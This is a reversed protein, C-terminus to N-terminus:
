FEKVKTNRDTSIDATYVSDNPHQHTSIEEFVCGKDTTFKHLEGPPVAWTDGPGMFGSKYGATIFLDGYLVHFTEHKLLHKHEEHYQGPLMVLIKKAYDEMNFCTIVAAGYKKFKDIGHHHSLEMTSGKPIVVGAKKILEMIEDVVDVQPKWWMVGKFNQRMFQTPRPGPVRIGKNGLATTVIDVGRLEEAMEDPNVSYFNPKPLVCVHREIVSAGAATASAVANLGGFHCSYGVPIGPYKDKLWQIQELQLNRNKAPYESVCHMLTLDRGKCSDVVRDIEEETAGGTSAIIPGQWYRLIELWLPWDTFSPSGVKLISYGHAVVDGVSKEDFPTCATMFGRKFAHNKLTIRDTPSLDTERFRKVYKDNPDATPHIYAPIHRYQFKFCHDFQPFNEAVKAFEDIIRIGLNVDGGHNNALEYV